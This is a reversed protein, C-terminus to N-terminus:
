LVPVAEEVTAADGNEPLPLPLAGAGSFDIRYRRGLQPPPGEPWLARFSSADTFV